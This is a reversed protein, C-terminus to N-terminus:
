TLHLSVPDKTARQDEHSNIFDLLKGAEQDARETQTGADATAKVTVKGGSLRIDVAAKGDTGEMTLRLQQTDDPPAEGQQLGFHAYPNEERQGERSANAVVKATVNGNSLIIDVAAKGHAGDITLRMHNEPRVFGALCGMFAIAALHLHLHTM